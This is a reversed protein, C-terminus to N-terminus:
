RRGLLLLSAEEGGAAEQGHNQVIDRCFRRAGGPARRLAARQEVSADSAKQRPAPLAV